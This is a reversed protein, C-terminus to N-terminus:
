GANDRQLHQKAMEASAPDAGGNLYHVLAAATPLDPATTIVNKVTIEETGTARVLWDGHRDRHTFYSM